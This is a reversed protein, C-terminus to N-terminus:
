LKAFPRQAVEKPVDQFADSYSILVQARESPDDFTAFADLLDQLPEPYVPDESM